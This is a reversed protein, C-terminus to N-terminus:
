KNNITSISKFIKYEFTQTLNYITPRINVMHKDNYIDYCYVGGHIFKILGKLFQLILSPNLFFFFINHFIGYGPPPDALTM